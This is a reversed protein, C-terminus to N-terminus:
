NEDKKKRGRRSETNNAVTGLVVMQPNVLLMLATGVLTGGVTIAASVKPFRTDPVPKNLLAGVREKEEGMAKAFKKLGVSSYFNEMDRAQRYRPKLYTEEHFKNRIKRIKKKYGLQEPTRRVGWRMGKRGYHSIYRVGM